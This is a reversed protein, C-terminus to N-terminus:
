ASLSIGHFWTNDVAVDDITIAATAHDSGFNTPVLTGNHLTGNHLAAYNGGNQQDYLTTIGHHYHLSGGLSGNGSGDLHLYM